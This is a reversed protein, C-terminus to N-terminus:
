FVGACQPRRAEDATAAAYHGNDLCISLGLDILREM